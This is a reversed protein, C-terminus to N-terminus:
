GHTREKPNAIRRYLKELDLGKATGASELLDRYYRLTYDDSGKGLKIQTEADGTEGFRHELLARVGDGHKISPLIEMAPEGATLRNRHQEEIAVALARLAEEESSFPSAREVWNMKM